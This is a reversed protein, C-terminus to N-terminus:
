FVFEVPDDSGSPINAAFSTILSLKNSKKQFVCAKSSQSERNVFCVGIKGNESLQNIITEPIEHFGIEAIIAKYPCYEPLGVALQSSEIICNYKKLKERCKSALQPEPETVYVKCGIEFIMTATYGYNGGIILVPDNPMLELNQLMLAITQPAFMYRGPIGYYIPADGYAMSFASVPIFNERPINNFLELIKRDFVGNPKLQSLVMNTRANQIPDLRYVHM